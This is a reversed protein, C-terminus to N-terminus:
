KVPRCNITRTVKHADDDTGFLITISATDDGKTAGFNSITYASGGSQVQASALIATIDPDATLEAATIPDSTILTSGDAATIDDAIIQVEIANIMMKANEADAKLKVNDTIGSMSNIGIGAIIGLVAIVILLEVLTFGKKNLRKRFFNM